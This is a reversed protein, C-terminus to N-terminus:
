GMLDFQHFSAKRIFFNTLSAATKMAAAMSSARHAQPLLGASSPFFVM